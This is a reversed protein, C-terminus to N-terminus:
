LGGTGESPSSYDHMFFIPEWHDDLEEPDPQDPNSYYKGDKEFIRKQNLLTQLSEGISYWDVLKVKIQAATIGDISNYILSYVQDIFLM